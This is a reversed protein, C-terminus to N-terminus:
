ISHIFELENMRTCYIIQMLKNTMQYNIKLSYM